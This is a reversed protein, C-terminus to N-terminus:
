RDWQPPLRLEVEAPEGEVFLIPPLAVISREIAAPDNGHQQRYERWAASDMLRRRRTHPVADGPTATATTWGEGDTPPCLAPLSDGGREFSLAIGAAPRGDPGLVRIRARGLRVDFDAEGAGGAVVAVTTLSVARVGGDGTRVWPAARWTGAPLLIEFRGEADSHAYRAERRPAGDPRTGVFATFEVQGEHPVGAVTVRGRLRGLRASPMDLDVATTQGERLVVGTRVTASSKTWSSAGSSTSTVLQVDWTGPPVGRLLAVGEGDFDIDGRRADAPFQEAAAGIVRLLRIAPLMGSEGGLVEGARPLGAQERLDGLLELPRLTVRLIAGSSVVIEVPRDGFLIGSRVVPAHADGTVRLCYARDPTGTLACAGAADTTAEDVLQAVDHAAQAAPLLDATNRATSVPVNWFLDELTLARTGPGVERGEFQELLEVKSVPVASGDSRVVLVEQRAAVPLRVEVSPPPGDVVEFEVAESRGLGTGARPEVVVWHTGRRVGEVVQRGGEHQWGGRIQLDLGSRRATTGPKAFLRLGFEEVPRGDDARRVIVHVDIGSRLVLRVNEAGWEYKGPTVLLEYGEREVHLPFSGEPDGRPRKELVFTGDSQASTLRGGGFRGAPEVHAGRVPKGHEDVVIGRIAAVDAPRQVVLDLVTAPLALDVEDRPQALRAGEVALNWTGPALLRRMRFSGDAATRSRESDAARMGERSRDARDYGDLIVEVRGPAVGDVDVVRGTVLVGRPLVVDGLDKTTGPAIASWRGRVPSLAPHQLDLMFQYPPPPVFRVAFRGDAGTTYQEPDEWVVEGHERHHADMREQNAGWGHLDVTVGALPNGAEDICRGRLEAGDPPRARERRPPVEDREAAGGRAASAAAPLPDARSAPRTGAETDHPAARGPQSAIWLALAAALVLALAFAVTLTRRM